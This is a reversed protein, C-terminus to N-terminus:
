QVPSVSQLPSTLFLFSSISCAHMPRETSFESIVPEMKGEQEM